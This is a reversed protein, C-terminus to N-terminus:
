VTKLGAVYYPVKAAMEETDLRCNTCLYLLTKLSVFITSERVV